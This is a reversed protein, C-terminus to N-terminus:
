KTALYKELESLSNPEKPSIYRVDSIKNDKIFLISPYFANKANSAYNLSNNEDIIVNSNTSIKGLKLKLIKVSNIETFVYKVDDSKEFNDIVFREANSICGECGSNPIIIIARYNKSINNENIWKEFNEISVKSTKKCSILFLISFLFM